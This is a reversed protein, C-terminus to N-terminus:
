AWLVNERYLIFFDRCCAVRGRGIAATGNGSLSKVETNPIPVPTVEKSYNGPFLFQLNSKEKEVLCLDLCVVEDLYRLDSIEFRFNFFIEVIQLLEMNLTLVQM